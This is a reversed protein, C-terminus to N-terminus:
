QKPPQSCEECKGTVDIQFHCIEAKIEQKLFDISKIQFHTIKGCKKCIFHCHSSEKKSYVIKRNCTYSHITANRKQEKLFRYITAIGIKKNQKKAKELLQEATFFNTLKDLEKQLAEKQKTNRTKNSM